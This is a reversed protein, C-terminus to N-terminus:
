SYLASSSFELGAVRRCDVLCFCPCNFLSASHQLLLGGHVRPHWLLALLVASRVAVGRLLLLSHFSARRRLLRFGTRLRLHLLRHTPANPLRPSQLAPSLHFHETHTPGPPHLRQSSHPYIVSTFFVHTHRETSTKRRAHLASSMIALSVSIGGTAM